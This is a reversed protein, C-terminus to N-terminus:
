LYVIGGKNSLSLDVAELIRVVRLGARADNFPTQNNLICDVFYQTELKLAELQDVRPAWMDGARYSVRLDYVGDGDTRKM